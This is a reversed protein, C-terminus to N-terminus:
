LEVLLVLLEEPLQMALARMAAANRSLPHGVRSADSSAVVVAAAASAEADADAATAASAENASAGASAIGEAAAPPAPPLPPLASALTPSPPHHFDHDPFLSRLVSAAVNGSGSSGSHDGLDSHGGGSGSGTTRGSRNSNNSGIRNSRASGQPNSHHSSSDHGNVPSAGVGAEAGSGGGDNHDPAHMLVTWTFEWLERGVTHNGPTFAGLEALSLLLAQLITLDFHLQLFSPLIFVTFKM